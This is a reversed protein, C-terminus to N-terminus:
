RDMSITGNKGLQGVLNNRRQAELGSPGMLSRLGLNQFSFLRFTTLVFTNRRKKSTNKTNQHKTPKKKKIKHTKQKKEVGVFSIPLFFANRTNTDYVTVTDEQLTVSEM